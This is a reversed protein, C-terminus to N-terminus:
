YILRQLLVWSNSQGNLSLPGSWKKTEPKFVQTLTYVSYSSSWRDTWHVASCLQPQLMQYVHTQSCKCRLLMQASSLLQAHLPARCTWLHMWCLLFFPFFGLRHKFIHVQNSEILNNEKEQKLLYLHGAVLFYVGGPLLKSVSEWQSSHILFQTWEPPTYIYKSLVNKFLFYQLQVQALSPFFFGGAQDLIVEIVLISVDLFSKDMLNTKLSFASTSPSTQSQDVGNTGVQKVM